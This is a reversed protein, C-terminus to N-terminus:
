RILDYNMLDYFIAKEIPTDTGVSLFLAGKSACVQAIEDIYASLEERYRELTPRGVRLKVNRGDGMGDGECDVLELKGGFTPALDEKGLIQCVLTQRKKYSLYDLAKQWHNENLFDSVIVSLGDNTGEDPIRPITGAFDAEGGFTISEFEGIVRFFTNSGVIPGFPDIATKDKLFHFSVKDNNRVALFGLAAAFALAYEAKEPYLGMSASCDIYIRIYMQREDTYLKLFHKKLRAYLNWDIRRIDDGLEYRRYDAFEITQGYKKILHKGGYYGTLDPRLHVSLTELRDFFGDNLFSVKM